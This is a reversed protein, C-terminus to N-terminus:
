SLKVVANVMASLTLSAITCSGVVLRTWSYLWEVWTTYKHGYRVKAVEFMQVPAAGKMFTNPRTEHPLDALQTVYYGCITYM